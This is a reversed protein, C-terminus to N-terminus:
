RRGWASRARLRSRGATDRWWRRLLRCALGPARRAHPSFPRFVDAVVEPAMGCGRDIVRLERWRGDARVELAVRADSETAQEANQVLNQIVGRLADLDGSIEVGESVDVDLRAGCSEVIPAILAQASARSVQLARERAFALFEEVVRELYGLERRVREAYSRADTDDELSEELLGVFLEMGGLPNRVEHAIGALMMQAEEERNRLDRQMARLANALEGIEDSEEVDIEARLDGLGIRGAAGALRSLPATIRRSVMSTVLTVVLLAFVSAGLLAGRLRHLRAFWAVSGETVVVAVVEGEHEIPAYGRKLPTGDEAYFRVSASPSRSAIVERIDVQDGGLDFAVRFGADAEVEESGETDVFTELAPSVLRIRRLDGADRAATLGDRLRAITANSDPALRAIRAANAESGYQAAVLSAATSLRQGLEAEFEREALVSALVAFALAVPVLAALYAVLLRNRLRIM